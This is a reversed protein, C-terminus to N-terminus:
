STKTLPIKDAHLIGERVARRVKALPEMIRRQYCGVRGCTKARRRQGGGAGGAFEEPAKLPFVSLRLLM